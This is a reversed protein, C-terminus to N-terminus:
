VHIESVPAVPEVLIDLETVPKLTTPDTGNAEGVAESVITNKHRGKRVKLPPRNQHHGQRKGWLLNVM